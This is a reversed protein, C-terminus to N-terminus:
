NAEGLVEDFGPRVFERAFPFAKEVRHRLRELQLIVPVISAEREPLSLQMLRWAAISRDIGILAVKASGDSDKPFEACEAIVLDANQEDLRGSLARMTKVAIQYQYWQIVERADELQEASEWEPESTRGTNPRLDSVEVTQDLERFWDSADAAYKKGARALPHNDVQQRRRKRQAPDDDAEVKNLDIGAEKAWEAIMERTEQFISGLKRWFVENSLDHTQSFDDDEKETAYVLCRSTLPCRECWRDCYNYIGSILDPNSALETLSRRQM